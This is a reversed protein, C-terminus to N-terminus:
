EKGNEIERKLYWIAKELDETKKGKEECRWIYKLANGLAFGLGLQEIVDICEINGKNYHEPHNVSNDRSTVSTQDSFDRSESIYQAVESVHQTIARGILGKDFLDISSSPEEFRPPNKIETNNSRSGQKDKAYRHTTIRQSNM